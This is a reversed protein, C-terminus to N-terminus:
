IEWAQCSITAGQIIILFVSGKHYSYTRARWKGDPEGLPILAGKELAALCQGQTPEFSEGVIMTQSHTVSAGLLWLGLATSLRFSLNKM